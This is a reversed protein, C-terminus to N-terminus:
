PLSKLRFFVGGPQVNLYLSNTGPAAAFPLGFDGWTSLNTSSQLQYSFNVTLNLSDLRAAPTTDPLIGYLPPAIIITPTNTYGFGAEMMSVAVVVGNSLVAVGEAGSGGGGVIQVLPPATYCCSGSTVTAAVVFGNIVIPAATAASPIPLAALRYSASTDAGNLNVSYQAATAVFTSGIDVWAGSEFLQLQYTAGVQLNTCSLLIASSIHLSFPNVSLNVVTSSSVHSGSIQGTSSLVARFGVEYSAYEPVTSFRSASRCDAGEDFWSGGRYVRASGTPPGTFNTVSGGQYQPAYWDSCWEAVNGSTDFIGWQNPLKEEVPYPNFDFFWAYTPLLAYSLDDGFFFRNTTGSRCAYEWEAETPLRYAWNLGIIRNSVEMQTLLSCYNSADFWSVTEVPNTPIGVFFSPDTGTVSFYEAQRVECNGIFFGQSLTVMTQPGEDPQRDEEDEPSGMIFSGPDVWIMNTPSPNVNTLGVATVMVVVNSYNIHLLDLGAAWIVHKNTGGTIASGVDGTLHLSGGLYNLGNNTSIGVAIPFSEAGIGDLDYYIDVNGGGVSQSAFVNSVGVLPTQGNIAIPTGLGLIALLVFFAFKPV